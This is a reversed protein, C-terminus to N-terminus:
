RKQERPDDITVGTIGHPSLRLAATAELAARPMVCEACHADPVLLRLRLTGTTVDHDLLELGAGDASVLRRLEALAGDFGGAAAAPAAAVAGHAGTLLAAAADVAADARVTLTDADIGGIPHDLV